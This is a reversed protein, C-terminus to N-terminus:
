LFPNGEPCNVTLIKLSLLFKLYHKLHKCSMGTAKVQNALMGPLRSSIPMKAVGLYSFSEGQVNKFLTKVEEVGKASRLWLDM